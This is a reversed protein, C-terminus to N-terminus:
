HVEYKSYVQIFSSHSSWCASFVHRCVHEAVRAHEDHTKSTGLANSTPSSPIWRGPSSSQMGKMVCAAACLVQEDVVNSVFRDGISCCAFIMNSARVISESSSWSHRHDGLDCEPELVPCHVGTKKQVSM